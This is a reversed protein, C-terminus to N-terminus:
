NKSINILLNNLEEEEIAGPFLQNDVVLAPTGTIQLKKAILKNKEIIKEIGPDNMDKKLQDINIENNKAISFIIDTDLVGKFSILDQHFDSYKNQKLSALAAKSAFTSSDGLIPLEILVVKLKKNKNIINNIRSFMIKCYGCNYDFFETLILKGDPNGIITPNEPYSLEKKLSEIQAKQEKILSTEDKEQLLIIAERIIEPNNLIYNRVIEGIVTENYNRSNENSSAYSYNSILLTIIIVINKM